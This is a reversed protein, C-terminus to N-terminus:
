VFALALQPVEPPVTLPAPIRAVPAREGWGRPLCMEIQRGWPAWRSNHSEADWYVRRRGFAAVGNALKAQQIIVETLATVASRHIVRTAAGVSMALHETHLLLSLAPRNGKANRGKVAERQRADCSPCLTNWIMRDPQRGCRSCLRVLEVRLKDVESPAKGTANVSGIPCGRCAARGEWSDPKKQGNASTYLTVCGRVTLTM